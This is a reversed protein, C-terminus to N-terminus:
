EGLTTDVLINLFYFVCANGDSIRQLVDSIAVNLAHVFMQGVVQKAVDYVRFSSLALYPACCIRTEGSVGLGARRSGPANTFSRCSSSFAWSPKCLRFDYPM